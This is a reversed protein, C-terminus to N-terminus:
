HRIECSKCDLPSSFPVPLICENTRCSCRSSFSMVTLSALSSTCDWKGQGQWAQLPRCAWAGLCCGSRARWPGCLVVSINASDDLSASGQPKLWAWWLQIFVPTLLLFLFAVVYARRGATTSPWPPPPPPGPSAMLTLVCCLTSLRGM